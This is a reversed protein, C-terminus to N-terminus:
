DKLRSSRHYSKVRRRVKMLDYAAKGHVEELRQKEKILAELEQLKDKDCAAEAELKAIRENLAHLERRRASAERSLESERARLASLFVDLPIKGDSAITKKAKEKKGRWKGFLIAFLFVAASVLLTWLFLDM